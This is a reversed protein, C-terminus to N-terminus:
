DAKCFFGKDDIRGPYPGEFLYDDAGTSALSMSGRAFYDSNVSGSRLRTNDLFGGAFFRIDVSKKPNYYLKTKLDLSLKLYHNKSGASTIVNYSQQELRINANIPTLANLNSLNYDLTHIFQNDAKKSLLVTDGYSEFRLQDKLLINTRYTLKHTWTKWRNFELTVYPAIKTYLLRQKLNEIKFNNYSYRKAFVGIAIREPNKYSYFNQELMGQGVLSGGSTAIMPALYYRFNRGPLVPNSILVGAMFKDYNNWGIAPMINMINKDKKEMLGFLRPSWPRCSKFMGSTHYFNNSERIDMMTGSPDLTLSKVNAMDHDFRQKENFGTHWVTTKEGNKDKISLEVPTNNGNNNALTFSQKDASVIKYDVLQNKAILNDFLWSLDKGSSKELVLKLDEPYPHKFSWLRYYEKMAADFAETGLYLELLKFYRATKKYVDLGYNVNIFEASTLSLPQDLKRKAFIASILDENVSFGRSKKDSSQENDSQKYYKTMYDAEYYSNIGEDMWAFDRENSALLGYFWNHGVEHEIVNDLSQAGGGASIVTIMPYEMGGGAILDGDVATAHPWPYEGIRSSRYEVARKVYFASKQWNKKNKLLFYGFVPLQKGSELRATDKVIMYEKSAFWAFDHVNEAKFSLTKMGTSAPVKWNAAADSNALLKSTLQIRENTFDLDDTTTGTASVVYNSPLTIKVEFNGFESYFEGQDLYPIPHWGRADFVAPKPYWQTMFYNQGTHGLRSFVKPIKLTFPTRIITKQGPGLAKPLQIEAIDPNNNYEKYAVKSGDISFDIGSLYGRDKKEAFYFDRKNNKLQQKAFASKDNKYANPWLHIFIKDLTQNSNNTYEMEIWGQLLHHEDDLTVDIKYNVQQQFYGERALVNQVFALLFIFFYSRINM